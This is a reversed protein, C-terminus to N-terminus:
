YCRDYNIYRKGIYYAASLCVCVSNNALQLIVQTLLLLLHLNLPPPYVSNLFKLMVIFSFITCLGHQCTMTPGLLIPVRLM